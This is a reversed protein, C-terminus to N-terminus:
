LSFRDTTTVTAGRLKVEELFEERWKAFSFLAGPIDPVPASADEFFVCKRSFENIGPGFYNIADLASFRLCHSGAWGSWLVRDVSLADNLVDENLQTEPRTEDPVDAQLGSYHESWVWTGKIIYRVWDGNAECWDDFARSIPSYLNNGWTGIQCHVPWLCLPGRGIEELRRTYCLAWEKAPVKQGQWIGFRFSPVWTGEAIDRNTVLTFPPAVRGSSDRWAIHHSGDLRHHSDLTAHINSIQPSLRKIMRGLKEAELDAGDVFLAGRNGGDHERNKGSACFDNQGDIVFLDVRM